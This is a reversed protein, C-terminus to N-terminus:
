DEKQSKKFKIFDYVDQMDEATFSALDNFMLDADPFEAKIREIIASKKDGETVHPDDTKGLLYDTTVNHYDSLKRILDLDPEVRNTEYHSYRSRSIGIEKAISDQNLGTRDRLIKLRRGFVENKKEM